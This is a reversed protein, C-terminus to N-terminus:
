RAVAVTDPSWLLQPRQVAPTVNAVRTSSAAFVHPAVFYIAPLHEAFIQQV